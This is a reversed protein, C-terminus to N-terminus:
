EDGGDVVGVGGVCQPGILTQCDSPWMAVPLTGLLCVNQVEWTVCSTLEAVTLPCSAPWQAVGLLNTTCDRLNAPGELNPAGGGADCKLFRGYGGFELAIWSCLTDREEVSTGVVLESPGVNSGSTEPVGSPPPGPCSADLAVCLVDIGVSGNETCCRWVGGCTGPGGDPTVCVREDMESGSDVGSEADASTASDTEPENGGDIPRGSSGGSSTSATTGSARGGCGIAALLVITSILVAARNM